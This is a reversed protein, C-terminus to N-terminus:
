FVRKPNFNKLVFRISAFQRYGTFIRRQKILAASSNEFRNALFVISGHQGVEESLLILILLLFFLSFLLLLRYLRRRELTFLPILVQEINTGNSKPSRTMHYTYLQCPINQIFM